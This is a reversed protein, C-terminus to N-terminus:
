NERKNTLIVYQLIFGVGMGLLTGFAMEKMKMGIAMGLFLCGVFVLKSKDNM